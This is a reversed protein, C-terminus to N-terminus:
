RVAPWAAALAELSGHLADRAAAGVRAGDGGALTACQAAVDAATWDSTDGSGALRQPAQRGPASLELVADLMGLDPDGAVTISDPDPARPHRAALAARTIAEISTVAGPRQDGYAAAFSPVRVHVHVGWGTEPWDVAPARALADFIAQGYMPVPHRKFTVAGIRPAGAGVGDFPRAGLAALMGQPGELAGAPMRAGALAARAALLGQVSALAPQLRWADGGRFVGLAGGACAAAIRIANVGAEAKAKADAGTGAQPGSGAESGADAHLLCVTAATAVPAIAATVRWGRESVEPLLLDALACACEYGGAVAGLWARGARGPDGEAAALAAPLVALGPHEALRYSDDALRAHMLFANAALAAAPAAPAPSGAVIAPGPEAALAGALRRADPDRGAALMESVGLAVCDAARSLTGEGATLAVDRARNWLARAADAGEDNGEDSRIRANDRPGSAAEDGIAEASPRDASLIDSYLGSLPCFTSM